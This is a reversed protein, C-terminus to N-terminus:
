SKLLSNLFQEGPYLASRCSACYKRGPKQLDGCRPCTARFRTPPLNDGRMIEERRALGAHQACTRGACAQGCYSCRNM